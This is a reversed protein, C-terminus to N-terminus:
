RPPWGPWRLPPTPRFNGYHGSHLEERATYVTLTFGAGGRHGFVLTPRNVPADAWGMVVADAKLKERNQAVV